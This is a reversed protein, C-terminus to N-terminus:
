SGVSSRSVNQPRRRSRSRSQSGVRGSGKEYLVRGRTVIETLFSNGEALRSQLKTPSRVMLDLPFPPDPLALRIKVAQSIHDRAPMVVLIDLDSDANPQGYAYSGFLIIRKPEFREAIQRAFERIVARPILKGYEWRFDATSKVSRNKTKMGVHYGIQLLRDVTGIQRM